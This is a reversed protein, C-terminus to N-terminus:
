IREWMWLQRSPARVGCAVTLQECGACLCGCADVPVDRGDTAGVPIRVFTKRDDICRRSGCHSM